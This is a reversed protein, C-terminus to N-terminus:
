RGYGQTLSTLDPPQIWSRVTAHANLLGETKMTALSPEVVGHLGTVHDQLPYMSQTMLYEKM